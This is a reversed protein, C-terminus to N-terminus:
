KIEGCNKAIIKFPIIWDKYFLYLRTIRRPKDSDNINM